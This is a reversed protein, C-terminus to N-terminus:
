ISRTSWGAELRIPIFQTVIVAMPVPLCRDHRTLPCRAPHDKTLDSKVGRPSPLLGLTLRNGYSGSGYNTAMHPAM